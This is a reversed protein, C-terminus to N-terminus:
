ANNGNSGSFKNPVFEFASPNLKNVILDKLAKEDQAPQPKSSASSTTSSASTTALVPTAVVDVVAPKFGKNDPYSVDHYIEEFLKPNQSQVYFKMMELRCEEQMAMMEMMEEEDDCPPQEEEYASPPQYDSPTNPDNGYKSQPNLHERIKEDGM